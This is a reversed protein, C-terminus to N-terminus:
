PTVRKWVTWREGKHVREFKNPQPRFGAGRALVYDYYPYVEPMPVREPTWEWRRRAPGGPPPYKGPRFDFPWHPYGAFTFMVVGGKQVQNWSGYHLFPQQHTIRSGKDFMLACVKSRPAIVAMAADLEGVEELQFEVFHKATNFTVGGAVVLAGFTVLQGKWKKPYPLLPVSTLLVLIAFRQALPWIFDHGTPTVFYLLVCCLPVMVYRRAGVTLRERQGVGMALTGLVIVVFAVFWREDSDDRFVNVLWNHVDGLAADLKRAGSGKGQTLLGRTTRGADTFTSWWILLSLAPVVPGGAVLWKRIRLWPFMAAFGLGFLGFPIIHAYFLSVSIGSLLLGSQWRPQNFHRLSVALGWFMLPIGILFPLLGYLFLVNTLLPIVLFCGREDRGMARLLSRVALVTGAFYASMLAVNAYTVGVVYALLSGVLYYLLYHTNGLQLTFHEQLGFAPDHFSHIVRITAVHYPLDQIPPYKVIWAPASAVIAILLYPLEPFLQRLRNRLRMPRCM